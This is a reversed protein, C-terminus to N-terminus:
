SRGARIAATYVHRAGSVHHIRDRTACEKSLDADGGDGGDKWWPRPGFDRRVAIANASPKGRVWKPWLEVQKRFCVPHVIRITRDKDVAPVVHEELVVRIAREPARHMPRM